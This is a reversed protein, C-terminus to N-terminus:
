SMWLGIFEFVKSRCGELDKLAWLMTDMMSRDVMVM